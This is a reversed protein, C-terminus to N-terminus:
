LMITNKGPSKLPFEGLFTLNAHCLGHHLGINQDGRVKCKGCQLPLGQQMIIELLTVIEGTVAAQGLIFL